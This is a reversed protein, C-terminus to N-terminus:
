AALIIVDPNDDWAMNSSGFLVPDSTDSHYYCLILGTNQLVSVCLLIYLLCPSQLLFKLVYTTHRDTQRDPSACM